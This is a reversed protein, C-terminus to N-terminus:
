PNYPIFPKQVGAYNFKPQYKAIFKEEQSNLLNKPCEKLICFKINERNNQIFTYLAIAYQYNVPHESNKTKEQLQITRELKTKSMHSAIRKGIEHSQGIYIIEKEFCLAYIGPTHYFMKRDESKDAFYFNFM